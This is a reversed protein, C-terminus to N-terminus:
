ADPPPPENLAQEMDFLRGAKIDELGAFFSAPISESVEFPFSSTFSQPISSVKLVFAIENRNDIAPQPTTVVYPM